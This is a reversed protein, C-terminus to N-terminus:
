RAFGHYLRESTNSASGPSEGLVVIQTNHLLSLSGEIGGMTTRARPARAAPASMRRATFSIRRMLESSSRTFSPRAISRSPRDSFAVGGLAERQRTERRGGLRTGAVARGVVHDTRSVTHRQRSSPAALDGPGPESVRGM